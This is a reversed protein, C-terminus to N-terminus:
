SAIAVDHKGFLAYVSSFLAHAIFSFLRKGFGDKNNEKIGLVGVNV